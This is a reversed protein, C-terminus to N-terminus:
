PRVRAYQELAEDTYGPHPKGAHQMPHWPEGIILSPVLKKRHRLVGMYGNTIGLERAAEVGSYYVETQVDWDVPDPFAAVRQLREKNRADTIRGDSTIRGAATLWALGRTPHWGRIVRNPASGVQVDPRILRDAREIVHLAQADAYGGLRALQVLGLYIPIGDYETTLLTRDIEPM